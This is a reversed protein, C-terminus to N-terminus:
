STSRSGSPPAVRSFTREMTPRSGSAPMATNSSSMRSLSGCKRSRPLAKATSGVLSNPWLLMAGLLALFLGPLLTALFLSM